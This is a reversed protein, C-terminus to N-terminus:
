KLLKNFIEEHKKLWIEKDFKLAQKRAAAGYAPLNERIKMVAEAVAEPTPYHLQAFDEPVDLLIGSDGNVLEPM